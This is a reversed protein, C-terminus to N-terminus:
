AGGLPPAAAKAPAMARGSLPRMAPVCPSGPARALYVALFSERSVRALVCRSELTEEDWVRMQSSENQLM